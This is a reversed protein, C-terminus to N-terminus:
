QLTISSKPKRGRPKHQVGQRYAGGALKPTTLVQEDSWGEYLRSRLLFPSVGLERAWEPLSKTIGNLTLRHVWRTNDQQHSLPIWRCNDPGYNGNVDIRDLSMDKSFGNALAWARFVAYDNWEACITIGRGGYYSFKEHRPNLCRWRMASWKLYLQCMKRKGNKRFLRLWRVSEKNM